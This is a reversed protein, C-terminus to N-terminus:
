YALVAKRADSLKYYRKYFRYGWVENGEYIHYKRKAKFYIIDYKDPKFSRIILYTTDSKKYYENVKPINAM